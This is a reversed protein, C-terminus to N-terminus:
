GGADRPLRIVTVVFARVAVCGCGVRAIPPLEVQVLNIPDVCPNRRRDVAPQNAELLVHHGTVALVADIRARAACAAGRLSEQRSRV